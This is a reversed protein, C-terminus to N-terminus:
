KGRRIQLEDAEDYRRTECSGAFGAKDAKLAEVKTNFAPVADQYTDIMRDRAEAQANFAAVAEASTRDLTAMQEKLVVGVRDIEAKDANLAAQQRAMEDTTTRLREQQALCDRLQARTLLPTGAKAKGFSGERVKEAALAPASGLAAALALLLGLRLPARAPCPSHLNM